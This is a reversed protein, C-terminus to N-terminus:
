EEPITPLINIVKVKGGALYVINREFSLPPSVYDEIDAIDEEEIKKWTLTTKKETKHLSPPSSPSPSPSISDVSDWDYVDEWSEPIDIPESVPTGVPISM